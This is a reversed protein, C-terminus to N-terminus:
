GFYYFKGQGKNAVLPLVKCKASKKRCKASFKLGNVSLIEQKITTERIQHHNQFEFFLAM